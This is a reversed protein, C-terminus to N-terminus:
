VLIMQAGFLAARKIDKNLNSNQILSIVVQKLSNPNIDMLCQTSMLGSKIECSWFSNFIHGLQGNTSRDAKDIAGLLDQLNKKVMDNLPMKLLNTLIMKTFAFFNISDHFNTSVEIGTEDVNLTKFKM